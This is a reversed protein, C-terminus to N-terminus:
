IALTCIVSPVATPPAAQELSGDDLIRLAAVTGSYQNAVLLHGATLALGRPWSGGSPTEAIPELTDGVVRFAAVTDVGRNTMWVFRGCPSAIIGGPQNHVDKVATAPVSSVETLTGAEADYRLGTISSSLEDAIWALDGGPAFALHRPGSGARLRNVVVQELTGSTTDLRYSFVTDAGLDVALVYRGSPDTVIQHAHSGEQRGAVPGSGQHVVVDTLEVPIGDADLRHVAVTGPATDNGYNATLLWGGDPHVSLHCPNTGGSPLPTGVPLLAGDAQRSFASVTGAVAENTSYVVKGSPHAVLFSPGSVAVEPLAADVTLRGSEPDFRLAALGVGDGGTDPTYSGTHVLVGSQSGTGSGTPAPHATM